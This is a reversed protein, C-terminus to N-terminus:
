IVKRARLERLITHVCDSITTQETDLLIEAHKPPEFPADIGTVNRIEGARAREYLGTTDRDECVALSANCYVTLFREEGIIHKAQERDSDFPSVMSVISILGLENSLRAIEATRRQNELRDAGSFGLDSNLGSRLTEGHFVQVQRGIDFLARELAKAISSKGSRPLGTLWLTVPHQGLRQLREAPTVLSIQTRINTQADVSDIRQKLVEDVPNRDVIMGAAVTANTMRDILIMAGTGRNKSYPDYAIPRNSELRVRGIENLNLATVNERHLTSINIRYRISHVVAGTTLSCHKLLYGKGIELPTESMWVIMMEVANQLIPSNNVHTLTDGRSIDIEDELALTLAIPAFAESLEGEYTNIWKVRSRKGSPLAVVEDGKRIVGSTVSGAFCRVDHSPRFVSQVPFRFDILNKDSAIHVSELHDMLLSGQFWGTKASRNLINDGKLASIPIFHIDITQLKAAFNNFDTKIEEFVSEDYDVLDMKNVAVVLHRIGLLSAIFSHRCTQELVGKRADILIIALDSTSAGTAMNRTYQEHGPTDAIIFKRKETAFYRYAVDITIGQEREAQLGDVLFAFDIEGENSGYKATDRRAANLVDDFVMKSDHLLRGILTSKGDDVSGCTLLRLLDQNRYEALYEEIGLRDLQDSVSM